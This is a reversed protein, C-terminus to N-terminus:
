EASLFAGGEKTFTEEPTLNCWHRGVGGFAVMGLLSAWGVIFSLFRRASWEGSRFKAIPRCPGRYGLTRLPITPVLACGRRRTWLRHARKVRSSFRGPSRCLRRQSIGHWLLGTESLRDPRLSQSWACGLFVLLGVDLLAM